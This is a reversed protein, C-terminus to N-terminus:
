FLSPQETEVEASAVRIGSPQVGFHSAAESVVREADSPSFRRRAPSGVGLLWQNPTQGWTVSRGAFNLNLTRDRKDRIGYCFTPRGLATSLVSAFGLLEPYSPRTGEVWLLPALAWLDGAVWREAADKIEKTSSRLLGVLFDYDTRSWDSQTLEGAQYATVTAYLLMLKGAFDDEALMLHEYLDRRVVRWEEIDKAAEQRFVPTGSARDIDYIANALRIPTLRDVERGMHMALRYVNDLNDLDVDSAILKGLRGKGYICDTIDSLLRRAPESGGVVRVAWQYLGTERGVLVQREIGGIEDPKQGAQIQRMLLEHDFGTGVYQLAEEVLHGYSTIAWDHLLAAATLQLRDTTSLRWDLGVQLALHGTGIVHEFRSVNAVGPMDLSDINSLRIHRLRQVIPTAILANIEEDFTVLGYLPDVISGGRLGRM